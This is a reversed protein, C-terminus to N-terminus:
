SLLNCIIRNSHGSCWFETPDDIDQSIWLQSFKSDAFNYCIRILSIHLIQILRPDILTTDPSRVHCKLERPSAHSTLATRTRVKCYRPAFSRILAIIPHWVRVYPTVRLDPDPNPFPFDQYLLNKGKVTGSQLIYAMRPYFKPCLLSKGEWLFPQQMTQVRETEWVSGLFMFWSLQWRQWRMVGVLGVVHSTLIQLVVCDM